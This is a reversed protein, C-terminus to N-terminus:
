PHLIHGLTGEGGKLYIGKNRLFVDLINGKIQLSSLTYSDFISWFDFICSECLGLILM